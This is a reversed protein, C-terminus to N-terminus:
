NAPVQLQRTLVEVMRDIEDPELRGHTMLFDRTSTGSYRRILEGDKLILRSRALQAARDHCALCKDHFLQGSQRIATLHDILTQLEPGQLRGHGGDLFAEVDRGSTRGVVKGNQLELKSHVFDGAHAEHCPACKQEYIAHPDTEQASAFGTVALILLLLTTLRRM